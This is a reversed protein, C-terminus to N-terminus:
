YNVVYVMTLKRRRFIYAAALDSKEFEFLVSRVQVVRALSRELEKFNLRIKWQKLVQLGVYFEVFNM